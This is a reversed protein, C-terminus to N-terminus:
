GNDHKSGAQAKRIEGASRRVPLKGLRAVLICGRVQESSAREVDSDAIKLLLDGNLGYVWGINLWLARTIM